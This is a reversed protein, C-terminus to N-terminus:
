KSWCMARRGPRGAAPDGAQTQGAPLKVERTANPRITAFQGGFQQVFPNRSFLLEVDMLYYNIRVTTLNQWTLNCRRATWRSSSARSPPPSSARSSTATTPTPSRAPRARRGRRAPASHEAFANRWRDVPHDAYREAIARAKRPEDAFLDLYAACYDYQLRTAVRDPNVEAFAALAEEIRDQLLLYYAVALRDDDTLSSTSRLCTSSTTISSTSATTSSRGGSAWRTPGPTSWRSTNWTSTRHAARGSRRDAAPQRDARRVRRRDADAHLLFERAAAPVNHCLAYSWLTPQYVHRAKLLALVAEFFARDKMRFAIKDLDLAHVNERNLFALVQETTGNQSVYEWSETDLKRRSRSWTSRSRRRGRRRADREQRRPGPLPRVPRGRPLLVPLRDDAHPVAGPRAAGTRTFQGNAVPMAGVPVQILVALRQRSPTPNTVVVQCGYVTHVVFEGTVFKDLREGNEDRYRDGHRYFNQSVLIPM